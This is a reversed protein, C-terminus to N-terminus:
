FRCMKSTFFMTSNVFGKTL